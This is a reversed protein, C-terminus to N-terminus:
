RLKSSRVPAGPARVVIVVANEVGDGFSVRGAGLIQHALV